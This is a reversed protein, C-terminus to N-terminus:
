CDPRERAIAFWDVWQKPSGGWSKHLRKLLKEPNYGGIVGEVAAWLGAVPLGTKTHYSNVSKQFCGKWGEDDVASRIEECLQVMLSVLAWVVVDITIRSGPCLM